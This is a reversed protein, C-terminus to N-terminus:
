WSKYQANELLEGWVNKDYLDLKARTQYWLIYNLLKRQFWIRSFNYRIEDDQNKEHHGVMVLLFRQGLIIFYSEGSSWGIARDGSQYFKIEIYTDPLAVHVAETSSLGIDRARQNVLYWLEMSM